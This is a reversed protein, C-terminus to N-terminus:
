MLPSFLSLVSRLIKVPFSVNRCDELTILQSKELTEMYDRKVDMVVSSKYFWVGCEYHLYYSRFDMNVTGVVAMKDDVVFTKGHVFGPTYEYVKVGGAILDRYNSRTVEFVYWKDPIHPTLIRVDIGNKAALLLATKMEHDIILYPTCAYVYKTAGNIMNIHTNEGVNEDDTPSDSYPQVYGDDKIHAFASIDVKYTFVNDKIKEDYNWFQLFMLTFNWVAEGRLMVSCDKWHGFREVKNIYEDALNIGGTMGVMGDIVLIKRHDRNNMQVALRPRIPNFVKAKIGLGRLVKYYENPLYAICGFDDYLVRVEVGQAVKEILIELITDWMYGPAIIFYELFIFRKAKRLEIIMAEFKAEGIPFFTTETHQYIPFIANKWLYNAQKHAISDEIELKSMIAANQWAIEQYISVAESDRKRLEKPVKQGGFLLYILGGFVPFGMILLVWAIKYTPNGNKNIVYVSICFSLGILLFYILIFYESLKMVIALFVSLQVIILVSVIVIKNHLLSFLKRIMSTEGM